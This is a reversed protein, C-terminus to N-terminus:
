VTRDVTVDPELVLVPIDRGASARYKAYTPNLADAVEWWRQKEAGTVERARVAHVRPGDQLEAVPRAKLNYYWQPNRPSGAYSAIAAHAGDRL